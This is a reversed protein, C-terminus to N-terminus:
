GIERGEDELIYPDAATWSVLSFMRRGNGSVPSSELSSTLIGDEELRLLASKIKSIPANGIFNAIPVCYDSGNKKLYILIDSELKFRAKKREEVKRKIYCNEENELIYNMDNESIEEAIKNVLEPTVYENEVAVNGYVFSRLQSEKQEDTMKLSRAKKVIKELDDNM